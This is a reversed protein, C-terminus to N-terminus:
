SQSIVLAPCIESHKKSPVKFLLYLSSILAKSLVFCMDSIGIFLLGRYYQFNSADTPPPIHQSKNIQRSRGAAEFYFKQRHLTSQCSVGPCIPKRRLCLCHFPRSTWDSAYSEAGYCEDGALGGGGSGEWPTLTAGRPTNAETERGSRSWLPVFVQRPAAASKNCLGAAESFIYQM